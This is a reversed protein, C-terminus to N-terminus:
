HAFRNRMHADHIEIEFARSFKASLFVPTTVENSL